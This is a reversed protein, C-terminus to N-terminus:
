AWKCNYEHKLSGPTVRTFPRQDDQLRREVFSQICKCKVNVINQMMITKRWVILDVYAPNYDNFDVGLRDSGREHVTQFIFLDAGLLVSTWLRHDM